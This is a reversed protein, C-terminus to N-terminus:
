KTRANEAKGSYEPTLEQTLHGVFKSRGPKLGLDNARTLTKQRSTASLGDVIRINIDTEAKGAKSRLNPLPGSDTRM